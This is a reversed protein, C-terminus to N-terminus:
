ERVCALGDVAAEEETLLYVTQTMPRAPAFSTLPRNCTAESGPGTVTSRTMAFFWEFNSRVLPEGADDRETVVDYLYLGVTAGDAIGTHDIDRLRVQRQQGPLIQTRLFVERSDGETDWAAEQGDVQYSIVAGAGRFVRQSQNVITLSLDFLDPVSLGRRELRQYWPTNASGSDALREMFTPTTPTYSVRVM